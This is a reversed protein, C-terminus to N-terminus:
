VKRGGNLQEQLKKLKDMNGSAAIKAQRSWTSPDHMRYRSGAKELVARLKKVPANGLDKFSKIGANHLLQEIKPGIGEILKLNDMSIIPRSRKKTTKKTVVLKSITTLSQKKSKPTKKKSATVKTKKATKALKELAAKKSKCADCHKKSNAKAKAQNKKLTLLKKNLKEIEKTIRKEDGQAKKCAAESKKLQQKLKEEQKTM